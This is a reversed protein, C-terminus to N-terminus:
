TATSTMDAFTSNNGGPAWEDFLKALRTKTQETLIKRADDGLPKLAHERVEKHHEPAPCTFVALIRLSRLTDESSLIRLMPVHAFMAGKFAGWVKDVVIDVVASTVYPRKAQMSSGLIAQKVLNKASEPIRDLADQYVEVVQVLGIFLDCWGHYALQRKVDSAREINRDLEAAIEPWISQTMAEAFIVVQEVPSPYADDPQPRESLEPQSERRSQDEPADGSKVRVPRSESTVVQDAEPLFLPANDPESCESRKSQLEPRNGEEPVGNSKAQNSLSKRTESADGVFRTPQDKSEPPRRAGIIGSHPSRQEPVLREVGHTTRQGPIVSLRQNALWDAIDLRALDTSAAKSRENPRKRRPHYHRMWQEHVQERRSQREDDVEISLNM